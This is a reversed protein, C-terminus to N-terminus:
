PQITLIGAAANDLVVTYVGTAGPQIPTTQVPGALAGTSNNFQVGGYLVDQAPSSLSPASLEFYTASAAPASLSIQVSGSASLDKNILYVTIACTSCQSLAYARINASSQITAPLFQQGKAASFAYLAYYEPQVQDSFVGPASTTIVVPDYYSPQHINYNMRRVGFRAMALSYDLAWLASAQVDSV